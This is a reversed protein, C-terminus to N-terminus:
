IGSSNKLSDPFITELDMRTIRWNHDYGHPLYRLIWCPLSKWTKSWSCFLVLPNKMTKISCELHYCTAALQLQLDVYLVRLFDPPRMVWHFKKENFPLANGVM